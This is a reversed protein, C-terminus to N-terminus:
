TINGSYLDREVESAHPVTNNHNPRGCSINNNNNNDDDDDVEEEDNLEM